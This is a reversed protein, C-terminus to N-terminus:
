PKTVFKYNEHGQIAVNRVGSIECRCNKGFDPDFARGGGLGSLAAAEDGEGPQRMTEHLAATTGRWWPPMKKGERGAADASAWGAPRETEAEPWYNPAGSDFFNM